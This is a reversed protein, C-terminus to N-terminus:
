VNEDEEAKIIKYIMNCHAPKTENIVFAEDCYKQAVKTKEM